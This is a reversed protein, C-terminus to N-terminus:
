GLMPGRKPLMYYNQPVRVAAFSAGGAAVIMGAQFVDCDLVYEFQIWIETVTTIGRRPNLFQQEGITLHKSFTRM